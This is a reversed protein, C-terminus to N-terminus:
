PRRHRAMVRAIRTDAELNGRTYAETARDSIESAHLGEADISGTASAVAAHRAAQVRLAGSAGVSFLVGHPKRHVGILVPDSDAGSESPDEEAAPDFNVDRM